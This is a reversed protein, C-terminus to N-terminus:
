QLGQDAPSDNNRQKVQNTQAAKGDQRVCSELRCAAADRM